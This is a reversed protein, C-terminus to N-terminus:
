KKCQEDKDNGGCQCCEVSIGTLIISKERRRDTSLGENIQAKREGIETKFSQYEVKAAALNEMGEALAEQSVRLSARTAWTDIDGTAENRVMIGQAALGDAIQNIAEQTQAESERLSEIQDLVDQTKEAEPLSTLAELSTQIGNLTDVLEELQTLTADLSNLTEQQSALENEMNQINADQSALVEESSEIVLLAAELEAQTTMLQIKGDTLASTADLMQQRFAVSQEDLQSKGSELQNKATDLEEEAEAFKSDLQGMLQTNLEAIKDANLVVQIEEELLGTATVSAVGDLSELGPVVTEEVWKSLESMSKGDANVSMVMVPMMDPNLKMIMPNGVTDPWYTGLMDLSERMEIIVSDMNATDNFECIVMSYNESSISSIQKINSVTAMSSEVPKTVTLEVEEPSAGGYTTMVIAYPLNMSPLLDTSLNTFAMFGMILVIIVGVIVTYPKKVSFRSLM